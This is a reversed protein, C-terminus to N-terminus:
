LVKTNYFHSMSKNRSKLFDVAQQPTSGHYKKFDNIMHAQDSFEYKYVLENFNCCNNNVLDTWMSQYRVLSCCKKPSIGIYDRFIREIQRTSIATYQSIDTVNSTGRSKLIYYVANAFNNNIDTRRCLKDILLREVHIIRDKINCNSEVIAEINKKLSGFHRDVDYFENCGITFDDDAFLYASWFYFRIGFSSIINQNDSSGSCYQTDNLSCFLNDIKNDSYDISFIIDMCGDPIVLGAKNDHVKFPIPSGWFCRIYPRLLECPEIEVYNPSNNMISVTIPKFLDSLVKM